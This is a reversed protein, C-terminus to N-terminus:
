DLEQSHSKRVKVKCSTVVAELLCMMIPFMCEANKEHFGSYDQIFKPFNPVAYKETSLANNPLLEQLAM